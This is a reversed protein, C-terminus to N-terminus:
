VGTFIIDVVDSASCASSLSTQNLPGKSKVDTGAVNIKAWDAEVGGVYGDCVSSPIGRVTATFSGPAGSLEIADNWSHMLANPGSVLKGSVWGKKIAMAVTVDSYDNTSSHASTISSYIMALNTKEKNLNIWNKAWKAAPIGIIILLGVLGIVIMFEILTFGRM